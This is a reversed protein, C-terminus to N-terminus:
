LLQLDLEYAVIDNFREFASMFDSAKFSAFMIAGYQLLADSNPSGKESLSFLPYNDDMDHFDLWVLYLKTEDNM